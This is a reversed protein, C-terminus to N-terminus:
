RDGVAGIEVDNGTAEAWVATGPSDEGVLTAVSSWGFESVAVGAAAEAPVPTGTVGEVWIPTTV